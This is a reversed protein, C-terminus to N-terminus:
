GLLAQGDGINSVDVTKRLGENDMELVKGLSIRIGREDIVNAHILITVATGEKQNVETAVEVNDFHRELLKTVDDHMAIRMDQPENIHKYYTEPLNILNDQFVLTQAADTLIYMSLLKALITQGDTVWGKESLSPFVKQTM